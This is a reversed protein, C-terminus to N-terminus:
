LSAEGIRGRMMAVENFHFVVASQVADVFADHFIQVSGRGGHRRMRGRSAAAGGHFVGNRRISTCFSTRRSFSSPPAPRRPPFSPRRLREALLVAAHCRPSAGSPKRRALRPRKGKQKGDTNRPHQLLSPIAQDDPPTFSDAFIRPQKEHPAAKSIVSSTPSHESAIDVDVSVSQVLRSSTSPRRGGRRRLSRQQLNRSRGTTRRTTMAIRLVGM